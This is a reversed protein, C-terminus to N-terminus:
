GDDTKFWSITKDKINERDTERDRDRECVRQRQRERETERKLQNRDELKEPVGDNFVVLSDRRKECM